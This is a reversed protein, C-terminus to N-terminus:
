SQSVKVRNWIATCCGAAHHNDSYLPRRGLYRQCFTSPSRMAFTSPFDACEGYYVERSELDCGKPTVQPSFNRVGEIRKSEIINEALSVPRVEGNWINEDECGRFPRRQPADAVKLEEIGAIDFGDAILTAEIEPKLWAIVTEQEDTPDSNNKTGFKMKKISLMKESCRSKTMKDYIEINSKFNGAKRTDLSLLHNDPQSASYRTIRM